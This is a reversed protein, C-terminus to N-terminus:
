RRHSRDPEPIRARREPRHLEPELDRCGALQLPHQVLRARPSAADGEVAASGRRRDASRDGGAPVGLGTAVRNLTGGGAVAAAACLASGARAPARVSKCGTRKEDCLNTKTVPPGSVATFRPLDHVTSSSRRIFAVSMDGELM